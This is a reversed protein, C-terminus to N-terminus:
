ARIQTFFTITRIMERYVRDINDPQNAAWPVMIYDPQCALALHSAFPHSSDRLLVGIPAQQCAQIARIGQQVTGLRSPSLELWHAAGAAILQTIDALSQGARGNVLETQMGRMRMYDMLQRNFAIQQALDALLAPDTVRLRYPRAAQELGYLAGLIRGANNDLLQGLGGAVDLHIVPHYDPATAQEILTTLQRIFRQLREGNTGLQAAPNSSAIKYGISQIHASLVATDPTEDAADIELHLPIPAPQWAPNYTAALCETVTVNQAQALATFLAQSVCYRLSPSLPREVVVEEQEPEAALNGTLFGRRSVSGPPPPPVPRTIVATETLGDLEAMIERIAALSRGNLLPVVKEQLTTLPARDNSDPHYTGWVVRAGDLVLGLSISQFHTNQLSNGALAPLGPVILVRSIVPEHSM